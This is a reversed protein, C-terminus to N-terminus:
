SKQTRRLEDMGYVDCEEADEWRNHGTFYRVVQNEDTGLNRVVAIDRFYYAGSPQGRFLTADGFSAVPM